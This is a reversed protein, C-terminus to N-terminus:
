LVRYSTARGRGVRDCFGLRALESLSTSVTTRSIGLRKVLVSPQTQGLQRLAGLVLRTSTSLDPADVPMVLGAPATGVDPARLDEVGIQDNNALVAARLAASKLERLNGPWDHQRIFEEASRTFRLKRNLQRGQTELVDRAFLLADEGRERLPPINLPVGQLRQALDERLKSQEVLESLPCDSTILIRARFQREDTAGVPLFSRVQFARLLMAQVVLDLDGIGDVHLVGEGARELLGIHDQTAGTFAGRVHGFLESAATERRLTPCDIVVHPHASRKSMAHMARVALDKGSGAEGVVIVPLDLDAFRRMDDYLRRSAPSNGLKEGVVLLEEDDGPRGLEMRLREPAQELFAGFTQAARQTSEELVLADGDAIRARLRLSVDVPHSTEGTWGPVSGSKLLPKSGRLVTLECESAATEAMILTRLAALRSTLTPDDSALAWAARVTDRGQARRANKLQRADALEYLEALRQAVAKLVPLNGAKGNCKLAIAGFPTRLGFACLGKEDVTEGLLARELAMSLGSDARDGTWVSVDMGIQVAASGGAARRLTSEALQAFERPNLQQPLQMGFVARLADASLAGGVAEQVPFEADLLRSLPVWDPRMRSRASWALNAAAPSHVRRALVSGYSLVIAKWFEPAEVAEVRDALATWRTPDNFAQVVLQVLQAWIYGREVFVELYEPQEGALARGAMLECLFRSLLYVGGRGSASMAALADFGRQFTRAAADWKGAAMLLFGWEAQRLIRTRAGWPEPIHWSRAERWYRLAREMDGSMVSLIGEHRKWAAYMTQNRQGRGEIAGIRASLQRAIGFDGRYIANEELQFLAILYGRTNDPKAEALVFNIEDPTIRGVELMRMRMLFDNVIAGRLIDGTCGERAEIDRVPQLLVESDSKYYTLMNHNVMHRVEIDAETRARLLRLSNRALAERAQQVLAFSEEVNIAVFECEAKVRLMRSECLYRAARAPHKGVRDLLALARAPDDFCCCYAAEILAQERPFRSLGDCLRECEKLLPDYAEAGGLKREVQGAIALTVARWEGAYGRLWMRFLRRLRRPRWFSMGLDRAIYLVDISPPGAPTRVSGAAHSEILTLAQSYSHKDVLRNILKEIGDDQWCALDGSRLRLGARWADRLDSDHEPAFHDREALWQLLARRTTGDAPPVVAGETAKLVDRERAAIGVDQLIEAGRKLDRSDEVAKASLGGPSLALLQAVRTADPQLVSLANRRGRITQWHEVWDAALRPGDDDLHAGTREILAAVLRRAAAPDRELVPALQEVTLGPDAGLPRLWDFLGRPTLQVPPAIEGLYELERTIDLATGVVVALTPGPSLRGLRRQCESVSLPGLLRLAGDARLFPAGDGANIGGAVAAECVLAHIATAQDADAAAVIIPLERSMANEVCQKMAGRWSDVDPLMGIRSRLMSAAATEGGLVRLVLPALRDARLGATAKRGTVFARAWALAMSSRPEDGLAPPTLLKLGSDTALIRQLEVDEPTHGACHLSWVMLALQQYRAKGPARDLRRGHDPVEILFSGEDDRLVGVCRGFHAPAFARMSFEGEVTPRARFVQRQIRLFVAGDRSRMSARASLLAALRDSWVPLRADM